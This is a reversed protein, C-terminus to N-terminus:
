DNWEDVLELLDTSYYLSYLEGITFMSDNWHSGGKTMSNTKIVRNKWKDILYMNGTTTMYFLIMSCNSDLVQKVETM